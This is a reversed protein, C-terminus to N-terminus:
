PTLRARLMQIPGGPILRILGFTVTMVFWITLVTRVTREIYYRNM